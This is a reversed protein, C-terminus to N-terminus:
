SAPVVFVASLMTSRWASGLSAGWLGVCGDYHDHSQYGHSRSRPQYNLTDEADIVQQVHWVGRGLHVDHTDRRCCGPSGKKANRPKHKGSRSRRLPNWSFEHGVKRLSEGRRVQHVLHRSRRPSGSQDSCAQSFGVSLHPASTTWLQPATSTSYRELFNSPSM